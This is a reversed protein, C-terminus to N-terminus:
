LLPNQRSEVGESGTWDPSHNSYWWAGALVGLNRGSADLLHIEETPRLKLHDDKRTVPVEGSDAAVVEDM